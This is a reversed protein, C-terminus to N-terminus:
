YEIEVLCLGQPPATVHAARRDRAEIISPISDPAPKGKGAEVLTGAMIRVMHRLFATGRVEVEIIGDGRAEVEVSTVERVSHAADSHAACFSTFDKEGIFHRAAERMLGIDLPRYVYWTYRRLLASPYRRNLIRYRYTKSRSGRRPNFGADVDAAEAVVIDDPLIINLAPVMGSAPIASATEFCAVQGLAHVGADTRSAGRVTVPEGTLERIAGELTGQISPLSPQIQWGAYNTGEYEVRLRVNRM